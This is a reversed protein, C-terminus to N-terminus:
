SATARRELAYVKRATPASTSAAAPSRRARGEGQRRGPLELRAQRDGGLLVLGRRELRRRLRRRRAVLPSSESPGITRRWRVKGSGAWFAISSATLRGLRQLAPPQPVDRLGDPRRGGAVDGPLPGVRLELRAQRDDRQDRLRRRRQQRLLAARLRGGAPVRGPEPRPVDLRASVAPALAVGTAVRLRAPDLGYMPWVIGPEKPKPPPTPPEPDDDDPRVRGDLLRPHRAGRAPRPARLRRRAGLALLVVLAGGLLIRRRVGGRIRDAGGAARARRRGRAARGPLLVADDRHGDRFEGLRPEPREGNALALALEPYGRGPRPRSRSAAASARTSTPSRCRATPSASASSTRRARRHGITEAVRRGHEILEADKITM